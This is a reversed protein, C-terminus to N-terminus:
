IQGACCGKREGTRRDLSGLKIRTSQRYAEERDPVAVAALADYARARTVRIEMIKLERVDHLTLYALYRLQSATGEFAYYYEQHPYEMWQVRWAKM